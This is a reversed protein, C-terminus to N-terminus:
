GCSGLRMTPQDLSLSREKRPVEEGMWGGLLDVVPGSPHSPGDNFGDVCVLVLHEADPKCYQLRAAESVTRLYVAVGGLTAVGLVLNVVEEIYELVTVGLLEGVKEALHELDVWGFSDFGLGDIFSQLGVLVVDEIQFLNVYSYLVLTEDGRDLSRFFYGDPFQALRLSFIRSNAVVVISKFRRNREAVVPFTCMGCLYGQAGAGAILGVHTVDGILLWVGEAFTQLASLVVGSPYGAGVGELFRVLGMGDEVEDVLVALEGPM